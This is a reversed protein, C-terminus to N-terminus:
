TVIAHPELESLVQRADLFTEVPMVSFGTRRLAELREASTSDNAGVVLVPMQM